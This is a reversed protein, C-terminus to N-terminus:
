GWAAPMWGGALVALFSYRKLVVFAAVVLVLYGALVARNPRARLYRGAAYGSLLFGALAAADAWGHLLLCLFAANGAAMAVRRSPGGPLRFFVAAAVLLCLLFPLSGVSM